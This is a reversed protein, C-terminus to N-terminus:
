QASEQQLYMQERYHRSYGVFGLATMLMLGAFFWFYNAGALRSSGDANEIFFNVASTFLNGLAVAAMYLSMVFSKMSRPAQTYSFELCTISVMVEASTLLVYGALQWIISPQQGADIRTQIWAVLVFSLVTIFLGIAIKNL